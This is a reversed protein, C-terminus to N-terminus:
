YYLDLEVDFVDASIGCMREPDRQERMEVKIIYTFGTLM